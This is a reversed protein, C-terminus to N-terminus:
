PLPFAKPQFDMPTYDTMYWLNGGHVVREAQEAAGCIVSDIALLLTAIAFGVRSCSIAKETDRGAM